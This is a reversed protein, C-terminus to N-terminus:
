GGGEGAAGEAPVVEHVPLDPLAAQYGRAARLVVDVYVQSQNYSLYGARLQGEDTLDTRGFCLYAAAAAAADYVTFPDAVLDGDGDRGWRAWTQPIFQMPGVARDYVPDEDYRGGDTDRIEAFPSGNLQPGIIKESPYGRAGLRGGGHTGHRGEIKSIGALAWWEVRCPATAAAKVWADLAVLPFDLGDGVVDARLRAPAIDALATLVDVERDAVAEVAAVEEQQTTVTEADIDVIHQAAAERAAVADREAQEAAARAEAARAEAEVAEQRAEMLDLVDGLRGEVARESYRLRLLPSEVDDANALLALADTRSSSENVYAAVLLERLDDRATDLRRAAEEAAEIRREHEEVAAATEEGRQREEDERRALAAVAEVRQEGLDVIHRRLDDRHDIADDRREEAALLVGEVEDLEDSEVPVEDLAPSPPNTQLPVDVFGPDYPGAAPDGPPAQTRPGTAVAPALASPAAAPAAPVTAAPAGPAPDAPLGWAAM